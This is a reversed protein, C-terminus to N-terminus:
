NKCIWSKRRAWTKIVAWLRQHLHIFVPSAMCRKQMHPTLSLPKNGLISQNRLSVLRVFSTSRRCWHCSCRDWFTIVKLTILTRKSHLVRFDELAADYQGNQFNSLAVDLPSTALAVRSVILLILLLAIRTYFHSMM